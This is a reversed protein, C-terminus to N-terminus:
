PAVQQYLSYPSRHLSGAEGLCLRQEMVGMEGSRNHKVPFLRLLNLPLMRTLYLLFPALMILFLMDM